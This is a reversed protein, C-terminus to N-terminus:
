FNIKLNRPAASSRLAYMGPNRNPDVNVIVNVKIYRVDSVTSTATAPINNDLFYLFTSTAQALNQVYESIIYQEDPAALSYTPTTGTANYVYKYLTTTSLVFRVYEVSNDRDIDSYFGISSSAMEVLPYAGDDGFTMERIDRISAEIGHRAHAVEYAQAIAYGNTRYLMSITGTLAMLILVFLSTVIITEALSFGQTATKHTFFSYM